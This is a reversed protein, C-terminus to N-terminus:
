GGYNSGSKDSSSSDGYDSGSRDLGTVKDIGAALWRQVPTYENIAEGVKWGTYFAM